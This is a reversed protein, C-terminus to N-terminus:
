FALLRLGISRKLSERSVLSVVAFYEANWSSIHVLLITRPTPNSGVFGQPVPDQARRRQGPKAVGASLFSM